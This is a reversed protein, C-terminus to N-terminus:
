ICILEGTKGNDATLAVMAYRKYRPIFAAMDVAIRPDNMRGVCVIEVLTWTLGANRASRAEICGRVQRGSGIRVDTVGKRNRRLNVLIRVRDRGDLSIEITDQHGCRVPGSHCRRYLICRAASADECKLRPVCGPRQIPNLVVDVNIDRM